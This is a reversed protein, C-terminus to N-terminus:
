SILKICQNYLLYLSSLGAVLTTDGTQTNHIIKSKIIKDGFFKLALIERLFDQELTMTRTTPSSGVRRVACSGLDQTDVLEVM